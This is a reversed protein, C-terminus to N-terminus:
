LLHIDQSNELFLAPCLHIKQLEYIKSKKKRLVNFKGIEARFEYM